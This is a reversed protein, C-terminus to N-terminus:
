QLLPALLKQDGAILSLVGAYSRAFDNLSEPVENPSLFNLEGTQPDFVVFVIEGDSGTSIVAARLKGPFPIPAPIEFLMWGGAAHACAEIAELMADVIMPEGPDNLPKCTLPKAQFLPIVRAASAKAPANNMATM